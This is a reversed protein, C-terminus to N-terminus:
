RPHRIAEWADMGHLERWQQELGEFIWATRWGLVQETHALFRLSGQQEGAHRLCYGDVPDAGHGSPSLDVYM